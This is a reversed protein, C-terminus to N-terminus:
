LWHLWIRPVFRGLSPCSLLPRLGKKWSYQVAPPCEFFYYEHYRYKKMARSLPILSIGIFIWVAHKMVYSLIFDVELFCFSDGTQVILQSCLDSYWRDWCFNGKGDKRYYIHSMSCRSWGWLCGIHRHLYFHVCVIGSNGCHVLGRECLPRLLFYFWSMRWYSHETMVVKESGFTFKFAYKFVVWINKIGLFVEPLVHGRHLVVTEQLCIKFVFLFLVIGKLQPTLMRQPRHQFPHGLARVSFFDFCLTVRKAKGDARHFLEGLPFCSVKWWSAKDTNATVAM